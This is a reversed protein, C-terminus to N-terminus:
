WTAGGDLSKAFKLAGSGTSDYFVTYFTSTTQDSAFDCGYNTGGVTAIASNTFAYDTTDTKTGRAFKV